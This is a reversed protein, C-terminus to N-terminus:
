LEASEREDSKECHGRMTFGAARCGEDSLLQSDCAVHAILPRTPILLDVGGVIRPQLEEGDSSNPLFVALLAVERTARVFAQAKHQV